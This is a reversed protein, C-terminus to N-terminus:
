TRYMEPFLQACTPWRRRTTSSSTRITRTGPPTTRTTAGGGPLLGRAAGGRHRHPRPVGQGSRAARHVRGRDAEPGRRHRVAGLPVADGRRAGPSEARDSRARGLLVGAAAPRVVGARSRVHGAGIRRPGHRGRQRARVEGDRGRRGRIGLDRRPRGQRAPLGGARGLLLRGRVRGDAQRAERRAGRRRRPPCCSRRRRGGARPDVAAGGGARRGRRRGSPMVGSWKSTQRTM